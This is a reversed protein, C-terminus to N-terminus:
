APKDYTSWTKDLHFYVDWISSYHCYKEREIALVQCVHPEHWKTGMGFYSKCMCFGM